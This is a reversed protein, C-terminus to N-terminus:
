LAMFNMQLGKQARESVQIVSKGVREYVEILSIGLRLFIGREPPAEGYLGNKPTGGGGGGGGGGSHPLLTHYSLAFGLVREYKVTM